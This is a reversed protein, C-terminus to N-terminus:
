SSCPPTDKHPGPAAPLLPSPGDSSDSLTSWTSRASSFWLHRCFDPWPQGPGQQDRTVGCQHETGLMWCSVSPFSQRSGWVPETHDAGHVARSCHQSKGEQTPAGLCTPSIAQQPRGPAGLPCPPIQPLAAGPTWACARGMQGSM